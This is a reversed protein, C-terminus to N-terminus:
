VIHHPETGFDLSSGVYTVDVFKVIDKISCQLNGYKTKLKPPLVEERAKKEAKNKNLGAKCIILIDRCTEVM